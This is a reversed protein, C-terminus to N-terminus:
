WRARRSCPGRRRAGGAPPPRCRPRWPSASWGWCRWSPPWCPPRPSSSRRSSPRRHDGRVTDPRALHRGPGAARGRRARHRRPGDAAARRRARRGRLPGGQGHLLGAAQGARGRPPTGRRGLRRPRVAAAPGARDAPRRGGPDRALAAGARVPGRRVPGRLQDRRGAPPDSSGPRRDLDALDRAPARRRGHDRHRARRPRRPPRRGRRHRRQLHGVVPRGAARAGAAPDHLRPVAAEAVRRRRHPRPQVLLAVANDDITYTGVITYTQPYDVVPEDDGGFGTYVVTIEDGVQAGITQLM